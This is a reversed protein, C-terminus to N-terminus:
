KGLKDKHRKVSPTSHNMSYDSSKKVSPSHEMNHHNGKFRFEVRKVNPDVYVNAFESVQYGINEFVKLAPEDVASVSVMVDVPPENGVVSYKYGINQALMETLEVAPGMWEVTTPRLLEPPMKSMEEEAVPPEVPATEAAKIQALAEAAGSSREASEAIRGDIQEASAEDWGEPAQPTSSPIRECASLGAILATGLIVKKTHKM